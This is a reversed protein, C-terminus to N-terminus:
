FRYGASIGYGINKKSTKDDSIGYGPNIKHLGLQADFQYFFGSLFEYGFVINGGYDFPKYYIYSDTSLDAENRFKVPISGYRTDNQSGTLGRAFYPGAGLLAHGNGVQPSFLLNFPVEIYFLKTTRIIYTLIKQRAGKAYFMLGPQLFLSPALKVTLSAGGHYGFALDYTLDNGDINKGYFNQLNVGESVAMRIKSVVVTEEQEEQSFLLQGTILLLVFLTLLKLKM